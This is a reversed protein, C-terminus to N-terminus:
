EGHKSGLPSVSWKGCCGHAPPILDLIMNGSHTMSLGRILSFRTSHLVSSTPAPVSFAKIARIMAVMNCMWDISWSLEGQDVARARGTM